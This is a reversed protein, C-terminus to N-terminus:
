PPINLDQLPENVALILTQADAMSNIQPVPQQCLAFVGENLAGFPSDARPSGAGLGYNCATYGHGL